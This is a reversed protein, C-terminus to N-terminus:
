AGEPDGAASAAAADFAAAVMHAADPAALVRSPETPEESPESRARAAATRRASGATAERVAALEVRLVRPDLVTIEVARGQGVILDLRTPAVGAEAIEALPYQVLSSGLHILRRTTVYLDGVLQGSQSRPCGRRELQTGSRMAVISEGAELVVKIRDDPELPVPGQERLRRRVCRAAAADAAVARLTEQSGGEGPQAPGTTPQTDGM